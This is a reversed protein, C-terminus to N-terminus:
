LGLQLVNVAFGTAVSFLAWVTAGVAALRVRNSRDAFYAIPVGVIFQMPIILVTLTLIGQIDLGFSDRINPALVNFAARDLQDVANLGFLVVLPFLAVGGTIRRFRNVGAGNRREGRGGGGRTGDGRRRPRGGRRAHGRGGPALRRAPETRSD